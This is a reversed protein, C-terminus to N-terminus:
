FRPPLILEDGPEPAITGFGPLPSGVAEGGEISTIKIQGLIGTNRRIALITNQQVQDPMVVEVTIFGGYQADEVYEKVKGVLLAQSILRTERALANSEELKRRSLELNESDSTKANREAKIKEEALAARIEESEKLQQRTAELEDHTPAPPTVPTALAPNGLLLQKELAARNEERLAEIQKHLREYEDPPTNKVGQQMGNWSMVLAAFLLAIITGLLLKMTDM